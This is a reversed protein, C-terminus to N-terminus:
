YVMCVTPYRRNSVSIAAWTGFINAVGVVARIRVEMRTKKITMRIPVKNMTIKVVAMDVAMSLGYVKPVIILTSYYTPTFRTYLFIPTSNSIHSLNTM